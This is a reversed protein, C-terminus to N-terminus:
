APRQLHTLDSWLTRILHMERAVSCGRARNARCGCMVTQVVASLTHRLPHQTTRLALRLKCCASLVWYVAQMSSSPDRSLMRTRVAVDQRGEYGAVQVREFPM